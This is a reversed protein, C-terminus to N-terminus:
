GGDPAITPNQSGFTAVKKLVRYITNTFVKEDKYFQDKQAGMKNNKALNM